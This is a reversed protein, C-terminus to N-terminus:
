QQQGAKGQLFFFLLTGCGEEILRTTQQSANKTGAAVATHSCAQSCQSAKGELGEPWAATSKNHCAPCGAVPAPSIRGVAILAGLWVCSRWCAALPPSFGWGRNGTYVHGRVVIAQTEESDGCQWM